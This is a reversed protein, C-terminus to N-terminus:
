YSSFKTSYGFPSKKGGKANPIGGGKKVGASARNYEPFCQMRAALASDCGDYLDMPTLKDRPYKEPDRFKGHHKELDDMDRAAKSPVASKFSKRFPDFVYEPKQLPGLFRTEENRAKARPDTRPQKAPDAWKAGRMTRPVWPHSGAEEITEEVYYERGEDDGM